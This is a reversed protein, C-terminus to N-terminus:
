VAPDGPISICECLKKSIIPNYIPSICAWSVIEELWKQPLVRHVGVIPQQQGFANDLPRATLKLNPINKLRGVTSFIEAIKSFCGVKSSPNKMNENTFCICFKLNQVKITSMLFNM